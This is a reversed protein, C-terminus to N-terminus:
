LSKPPKDDAATTFAREMDRIARYLVRRVTEDILVIFGINSLVSKVIRDRVAKEQVLSNIQAELEIPARSFQVAKGLAQEVGNFM